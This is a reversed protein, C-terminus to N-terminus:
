FDPGDDEVTAADPEGGEVTAVAPFDAPDEAPTEPQLAEGDEVGPAVDPIEDPIADPIADPIYANPTSIPTSVTGRPVAQYDALGASSGGSYGESNSTLYNHMEGAPIDKCINSYFDPSQFHNEAMIPSYSKVTNKAVAMINYTTNVDNPAGNRTIRFIFESPNPYKKLVDNMLQQEFRANRDWFLVEGSEVDYLPIFLKTQVRINKGCAPCGRGTCHCYGTYESSKIYHTDAILVDDVNRYLFIVDKSEGDERLMFLGGFREENYQTVSKFAM